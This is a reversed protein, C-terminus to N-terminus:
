APSRCEPCAYLMSEMEVAIQKGKYKSNLVKQTEYADEYLDNEKLLNITNESLDVFVGEITAKTENKKVISSSAREGLLLGIADILLSKGSGTEGTIVTLGTDFDLSINDIIAFNKVTLTQLM